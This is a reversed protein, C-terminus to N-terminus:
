RSGYTRNQAKIRNNHAILEKYLIDFDYVTIDSPKYRIKRHEEIAFLSKMLSEKTVTSEGADQKKKEEEEYEVQESKLKLRDNSIWTDIKVLDSAITEKTIPKTYGWDLLLNAIAQNYEKSLSAMIDEVTSIKTNLAELKAVSKIYKKVEKSGILEYHQSLLGMWARHIMGPSPEGQKVLCSYDNDVICKIFGDFYLDEISTILLPTIYEPENEASTGKRLIKKLRLM